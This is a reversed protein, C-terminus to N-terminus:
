KPAQPFCRMGAHLTAVDRLRILTDGNFKLAMSALRLQDSLLMGPDTEWAWVFYSVGDTRWNRFARHNSDADAKDITLLTIEAPLRTLADRIAPLLTEVDVEPFFVFTFRM